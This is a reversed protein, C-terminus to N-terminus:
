HGRQASEAGEGRGEEPPRKEGSERGAEATLLWLSGAPGDPRLGTRTWHGGRDGPRTKSTVPPSCSLVSPRCIGPCRDSRDAWEVSVPPTQKRSFRGSKRVSPRRHCYAFWTMAYQTRICICSVIYNNQQFLTHNPILTIVLM